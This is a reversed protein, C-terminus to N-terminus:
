SNQAEFIKVVRCTDCYHLLDDNSDWLNKETLVALVKTLSERTGFVKGCELCTVPEARALVIKKSFNTDLTLGPLLTLAQEPCIRACIDCQVCLSPTHLLAFRDSDAVLAQIHCESVCSSCLTCRNQDCSIQGFESFLKGTFQHTIPVQELLFNLLSILKERRNTFSYNTYLTTLLNKRQLQLAEAMREPQISEVVPESGSFFAASISNVQQMQRILMNKGAEDAFFLIRGVGQCLLFLLQMTTLAAPVPHELFFTRNFKKDRHLWWFKHLDPEAGIVVTCGPEFHIKKCYSIFNQDTFRLSQMAGTPCIAICAGCEQCEQQNVRIGDSERTIAGHRCINNCLDCGLNLRGSYQCLQRNCTVTEDIQSTFISAFFQALDEEWFIRGTNEPFEIETEKLLLLAPTEMFRKEAGHLDIADVPCVRLCEKCFSCQDLDLFLHENICEEPCVPGCNGCYTCLFLNVPTRALFEIHLTNEIVRIELDTATTIEPDMEKMLLCDIELVGGYTDMFKNLASASNGLVVVKPNAERFFSRYRVRICRDLEAGAISELQDPSFMGLDGNLQLTPSIPLSSDSSFASFGSALFVQDYPTNVAFPEAPHLPQTHSKLVPTGSGDYILLLQSFDKHM